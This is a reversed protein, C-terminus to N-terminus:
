YGGSELWMKQVKDYFTMKNKYRLRMEAFRILLQIPKKRFPVREDFLRASLIGLSHNHVIKGRESTSCSRVDSSTSADGRAANQGGSSDGRGNCNESEIEVDYDISADESADSCRRGHNEM